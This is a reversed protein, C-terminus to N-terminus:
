AGPNSVIVLTSASVEMPVNAVYNSTLFVPNLPNSYSNLQVVADGQSITVSAQDLAFTYEGTIPMSTNGFLLFEDYSASAIATAAGCCGGTGATLLLLNAFSM